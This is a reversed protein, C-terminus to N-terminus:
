KDIQVRKLQAIRRNLDAIRSRILEARKENNLRVVRSETLRAILDREIAEQELREREIHMQREDM